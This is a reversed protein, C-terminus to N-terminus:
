SNGRGGDEKGNARGAGAQEAWNRCRVGGVLEHDDRDSERVVVRRHHGDSAHRDARVLLLRADVRKGVALVVASAV